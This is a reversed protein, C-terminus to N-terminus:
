VVKFGKRDMWKQKAYDRFVEKDIRRGSHTHPKDRAPGSLRVPNGRDNLERRAVTARHDNVVMNGAIWGQKTALDDIRRQDSASVYPGAATISAGFSLPLAGKESTFHGVTQLDRQTMSSFKGYTCYQGPRRMTVRIKQQPKQSNVGSMRTGGTAPISTPSRRGSASASSTKANVARLLADVSPLKDLDLPSQGPRYMARASRVREYVPSPAGGRTSSAFAVRRRQSTTAPTEEDEGYSAPALNSTSTALDNARRREALSTFATRKPAITRM